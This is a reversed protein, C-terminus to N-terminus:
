TKGETRIRTRRCAYKNRIRPLQQRLMDLFADVEEPASSRRLLVWAENALKELSIKRSGALAHRDPLVAVVRDRYVLEQVFRGAQTKPVSRMFGVDLSGLELADLQENPTQDDYLHIRV